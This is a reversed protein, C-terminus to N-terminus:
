RPRAAPLPVRYLHDALAQEPDPYVERLRPSLPGPKKTTRLAQLYDRLVAGGAPDGRLLLHVWAWAERYEPRQMDPVDELGELRALNPQFPGRRLHDLHQPNVGAQDPPLEFYGALGEDLWLPVDKLVGHLLAHTLEHRLDARLRDGMWTFVKLEDPGGVRPDAVFYAPRPTLNGKYQVALYREYRERTDFLFVQIVRTTPPLGLEGYVQDPLADLEVLLPDAPNLPFDHYFVYHGRRTAHLGPAASTASAPVVGDDRNPAAPTNAPSPDAAPRRLTLTECGGPAALG